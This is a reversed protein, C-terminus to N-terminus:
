NLVERVLFVLKLDFQLHSGSSWDRPRRVRRHSPTVFRKKVVFAAQSLPKFTVSKQPVIKQKRLSPLAERLGVGDSHMDNKKKAVNHTHKKIGLGHFNTM